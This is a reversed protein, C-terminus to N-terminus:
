LLFYHIYEFFRKLTKKRKPAFRRNKLFNTSKKKFIRGRLRRRNTKQIEISKPAFISCVSKKTSPVRTILNFMIWVCKLRMSTSDIINHQSSQVDMETSSYLTRINRVYSVYSVSVRLHVRVLGMAVKKRSTHM